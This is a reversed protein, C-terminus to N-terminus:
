STGWDAKRKRKRLVELLHASSRCVKLIVNRHLLNGAEVPKRSRQIPKKRSSWMLINSNTLKAKKKSNTKKTSNKGKKNKEDHKWETWSSTSIPRPYNQRKPHNTPPPLKKQHHSHCNFLKPPKSVRKTSTNTWTAWESGIIIYYKNKLSGSLNLCNKWTWSAYFQSFKHIIAPYSWNWDM